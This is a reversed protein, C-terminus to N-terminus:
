MGSDGAWRKALRELLQRRERVVREGAATAESDNAYRHPSLIIQEGDVKIEVETGVEWGVQRLIPRDFTLGASNGVRSLRKTLAM